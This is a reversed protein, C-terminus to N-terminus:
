YEQLGFAFHHGSNKHRIKTPMIQRQMEQVCNAERLVFLQDIFHCIRSYEVLIVLHGRIDRSGIERMM